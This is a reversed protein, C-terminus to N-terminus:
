ATSKNSSYLCFNPSRNVIRRPLGSINVYVNFVLIDTRRLLVIKEMSMVYCEMQRDKLDGPVGARGGDLKKKMKM